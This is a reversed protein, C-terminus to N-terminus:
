LFYLQWQVNLQNAAHATGTQTDRMYFIELNSNHGYPWFAAGGGYRMQDVSTVGGSSTGGWLQEYRVIPSLNLGGINYGVEGMLATQKALALFTGGTMHVVNVQGTFIGPGLPLDAFVDGGYYHYSKQTDGTIGFSLIKKKGLYTGAYFFGPEPDLLNVQIRGTARFFNNSGIDTGADANRRGQFLGARYELHGDLVLGRVQVGADRGVPSSQTGMITGATSLFSFAFYDWSYLTTAGQVANHAMPPLMYGADIKFLDGLAKWTIFADQVNMGPTLKVTSAATMAMANAATNDALFLNPYDTDFFYEFNGFLTGAVLLRARRVYLNYTNDNLSNSGLLQFQPQLLLGVKLTNGASPESKFSVSPPWVPAPAVPPPAMPAPPPPPEAMPPAAAPVVPVAPVVEPAPPPPPAPPAEEARVTGAMLTLACVVLSIRSMM